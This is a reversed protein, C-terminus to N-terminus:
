GITSANKLLKRFIKFLSVPTKSIYDAILRLSLEPTDLSFEKKIKNSVPYGVNLFSKGSRNEGTDLVWIGAPFPISKLPFGLKKFYGETQWHTAFTKRLFEANAIEWIQEQTPNLPFDEPFNLFQRILQWSFIHSSGCKTNFAQTRRILAGGDGYVFGKDIHWGNQGPHSNVYGSIKNSIFDDSDLLMLYKPRYKEAHLIGTIMKGVKDKRCDELKLSSGKKDSPPPFNVKIFDVKPSQFKTNPIQNCVVIVRFEKNIQSCASKLTRSLLAEIREYSNSNDPHRITTIIVLM